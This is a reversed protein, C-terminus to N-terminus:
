GRLTRTWAHLAKFLTPTTANIKTLLDLEEPSYPEAEILHPQIAELEALIAQLPDYLDATNQAIHRRYISLGVNRLKSVSLALEAQQVPHRAVKQQAALNEYSSWFADLRRRTRQRPITISNTTM